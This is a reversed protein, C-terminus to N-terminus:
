LHESVSTTFGRPMVATILITHSFLDLLPLQPSPGIVFHTMECLNMARAWVVVLEVHVVHAVLLKSCFISIDFNM